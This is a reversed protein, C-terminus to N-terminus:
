KSKVFFTSIQNPFQKIDFKQELMSPTFTNIAFVIEKEGIRVGITKHKLHQNKNLHTKFNALSGEKTPGNGRCYCTVICQNAKIGPQAPKGIKAKPINRGAM